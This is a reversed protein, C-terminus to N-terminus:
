TREGVKENLNIGLTLHNANHGRFNEYSYEITQFFKKVFHLGYGGLRKNQLIKEAPREDDNELPNFKKGCDMFELIIKGSKKELKLWVPRIESDYAYNIINELIEEFGLLLYMKIKKPVELEEATTKVEARITEFNEDDARYEKWDRLM